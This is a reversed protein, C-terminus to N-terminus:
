RRITGERGDGSLSQSKGVEERLWFADVSVAVVYLACTKAEPLVASGDAGVSWRGGFIPAIVVAVNCIERETKVTSHQAKSDIPLAAYPPALCSLILLSAISIYARPGDAM